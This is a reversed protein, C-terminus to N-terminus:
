TATFYLYIPTDHGSLSNLQGTLLSQTHHVIQSDTSSSQAKPCRM